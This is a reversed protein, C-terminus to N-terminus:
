SVRSLHTLFAECGRGRDVSRVRAADFAALAAGGDFFDILEQRCHAGRPDLQGLLHGALQSAM